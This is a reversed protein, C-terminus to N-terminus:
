TLEKVLKRLSRSRGLVAEDSLRMKGALASGHRVKHYSQGARLARNIVSKPDKGDLSPGLLASVPQRLIPLRDVLEYDAMVIAEFKKDAVVIAFPTALNVAALGQAIISAARGALEPCCGHRREKDVVILIKDPKKLAATRAYPLIQNSFSYDWDEACGGVNANSIVVNGLRGVIKPLCFFETDGEGICAINM